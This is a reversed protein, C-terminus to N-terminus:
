YGGKYRHLIKNTYAQMSPYPGVAGYNASDYVDPNGGYWWAAVRRIALDVDGGTAKLERQIYDSMVATAMEEQYRPNKLFESQSSVTGLNYQRGWAKVNSWLIQYKGLAPDKDNGTRPDDNRRTYDGGSEQFGIAKLLNTPSIGGIQEITRNAIRSSPNSLLLGRLRPREKLITDLTKVENPPEIPNLDHAERQMNLVEFASYRGGTLAAAAYFFQLPRGTRDLDLDKEDTVFDTKIADPNSELNTKLQRLDQAQRIKVTDGTTKPEFYAMGVRPKVKFVGGTDQEANIRFALNQAATEIAKSESEVEGSRVLAAADAMLQKHAYVQAAIFQTSDKKFRSTDKLVEYLEADVLKKGDEVAKKSDSGFLKDVILNQGKLRNYTDIHFDKAQDETIQGGPNSDLYAQAMIESEERDMFAPEYALIKDALRRGKETTGYENMFEQHLTRLTSESPQKDRFSTLHAQFAETAEMDLTQQRKTYLQYTSDLAIRRLEPVNFEEGFMQTLTTVGGKAAPHPIKTEDIVKVLDLARQPAESAVTTFITKVMGRASVFGGDQLRAANKLFVPLIDEAKQPNDPNSFAQYLSNQEADLQIADQEALYKTTYDVRQINLSKNLQPLFKTALVKNSLGGPNNNQIYKQKLYEAATQWQAPGEYQNLQFDAGGNPDQLMTTNTKMESLLHAGFGQAAENMAALDWGQQYYRSNARVTSATAHDPAKEALDSMGSHVEVGKKYAADVIDNDAQLAEPPQSMYEVAGRAREEDVYQQAQDQVFKSITTSFKSLANLNYKDNSAQLDSVRQMERTQQSAQKEMQRIREAGQREIQEAEQRMRRSPDAVQRNRFGVSQASGQYPM